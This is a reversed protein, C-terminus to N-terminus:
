LTGRNKESHDVFLATMKGDVLRVAVGAKRCASAFIEHMEAGAKRKGYGIFLGIPSSSKKHRGLLVRGRHTAKANDTCLEERTYGGWAMPGQLQFMSVSKGQDCWQSGIYCASCDQVQEWFGSEHAAVAYLALATAETAAEGVFLPRAQSEAVFDKAVRELRGQHLEPYPFGRATYLAMMMTFLVQTIAITTTTMRTKQM